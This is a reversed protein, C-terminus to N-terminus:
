DILDITRLEQTVCYVRSHRNVHANLEVRTSSRDNRRGAVQESLSTGDNHITPDTTFYVYFVYVRYVM